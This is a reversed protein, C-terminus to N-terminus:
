QNKISIRTRTFPNNINNELNNLEIHLNTSIGISLATMFGLTAILEHNVFNLLFDNKDSFFDPYEVNIVIILLLMLAIKVLSRLNPM